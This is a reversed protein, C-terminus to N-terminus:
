AGSTIRKIAQELTEKQPLLVNTPFEATEPHDLLEAWLAHAGGKHKCIRAQNPHTFRSITVLVKPPPKRGRGPGM